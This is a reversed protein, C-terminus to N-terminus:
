KHIKQENIQKFWSYIYFGTKDFGKGTGAIIKLQKKKKLSTMSFVELEKKIM